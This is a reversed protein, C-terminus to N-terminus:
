FDYSPITTYQASHIGSDAVTKALPWNLLTLFLFVQTNSLNVRLLGINFSRRRLLASCTRRMFVYLAFIGLVEVCLISCFSDDLEQLPTSNSEAAVFYHKYLLGDYM